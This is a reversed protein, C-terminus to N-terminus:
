SALPLALAGDLTACVALVDLLGTIAFIKRMQQEPKVVLAFRHGLRNHSRVFVALGTSDCYHCRELSVVIRPSNAVEALRIAAELAPASLIDIDSEVRILSADGVSSVEFM